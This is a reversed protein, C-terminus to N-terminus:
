PRVYEWLKFPYKSLIKFWNTAIGNDRCARMVERNLLVTSRWGRTSIGGTQMHVLVEPLYRYRLTKNYFARAVWEFDGAIRYNIQFPGTNEFVSRRVFMAPHAPMWGWSILSPRFRDSRYRRVLRDPANANFFAIDGFLVDLDDQEMRTAVTALVEPHAYRDDANLFGIVDGTAAQIGKNMADYIGNDPESIFTAVRRGHQRVIAQTGDKSNGDIVVHEISSATQQSVSLLSEAITAASNYCVTIISLKM